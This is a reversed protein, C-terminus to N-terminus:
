ENSAHDYLASRELLATLIDELDDRQKNSIDEFVFQVFQDHKRVEADFYQKGEKTLSVLMIRKDREDKKREIYGYAELKAIIESMSSPTVKFSAVLEKQPLTGKELLLRLVRLQSMNMNGHFHGLTHGCRHILQSLRKSQEDM